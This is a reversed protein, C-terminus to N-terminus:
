NEPYYPRKREREEVFYRNDEKFVRAAKAVLEAKLRILLRGINATARVPDTSAYSNPFNLEWGQIVVGAEVFRDGKHTPLGSVRGLRDLRVLEPHIALMQCTESMCAHGSVHKNEVVDRIVDLDEETLEPYYSLGHKEVNPLIDRDFLVSPYVSIVSFDRHKHSLMGTFYGLFGGNGGHHNVLLIKDFGQRAIETCYNELLDLMLHPDLRIAGKWEVLSHVAGFEFAPFVVATELEAAANAVAEAQYVDTRVPLHQGHMEYCGVPVICLGNAARAADEFEEERLEAWKLLSM